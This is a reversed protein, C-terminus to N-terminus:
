IGKRKICSLISYFKDTFEDTPPMSVKGNKEIRIDDYSLYDDLLVKGDLYSKSEISELTRELDIQYPLQYYYNGDDDVSEILKTKEYGTIDLFVKGFGIEQIRERLLVIMKEDLMELPEDVSILANCDDFRVRVNEQKVNERVFDEAKQIMELRENTVKQNTKVRTALCTTDYSYDLGYYELMEFVDDKTIGCEVLPSTMNFSELVLIGPRDELLDTINTGELFYDYEEFEPMQSINHYMLKRCEYCREPGNNKFTEKTLFDLNIVEHKLNFKRAQKRTYEIFEKPMMNNNVTVLLSDPSVKSLVYALLTSDSGASFGLVSKKNRLFDELRKIKDELQMKIM